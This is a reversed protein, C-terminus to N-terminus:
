NPKIILYLDLISSIRERGGTNIIIILIHLDVTNLISSSHVPTIKQIKKFDESLYRLCSEITQPARPLYLFNLDGVCEWCCEFLCLLKIVCFM